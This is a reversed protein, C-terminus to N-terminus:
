EHGFSQLIVDISLEKPFHHAGHLLPAIKISFIFHQISRQVHGICTRRKKYAVLHTLYQGKTILSKKSQNPGDMKNHSAHVGNHKGRSKICMYVM